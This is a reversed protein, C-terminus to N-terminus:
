PKWPEVLAPPSVLVNGYDLTDHLAVPICIDGEVHDPVIIVM